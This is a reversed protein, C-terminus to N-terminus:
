ENVARAAPEGELTAEIQRYRELLETNSVTFVDGRLLALQGAVDSSPHQHDYLKSVLAYFKHRGAQGESLLAAVDARAVEAPEQVAGLFAAIQADCEGTRRIKVAFGGPNTIGQGTKHLHDAYRRCEESSFKSLVCGDGPSPSALAETTQTHPQNEQNKVAHNNLVHNNMYSSAKGTAPQVVAPQATAPEAVAPKEPSPQVMSAKETAPKEEGPETRVAKLTSRFRPNLDPSEYVRHVWTFKGGGGNVKHRWLYGYNELETLISRIADRGCGGNRQLDGPRVEWNDPKALLYAMVGRAGWSLRDDELVRRNIQAYPNARDKYTRIITPGDLDFLDGFSADVSEKSM